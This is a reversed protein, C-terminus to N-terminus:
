RWKRRSWLAISSDNGNIPDCLVDEPNYSDLENM